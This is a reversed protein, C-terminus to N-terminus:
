GMRSIERRKAGGVADMEKKGRSSNQKGVGRTPVALVPRPWAPVARVPGRKRRLQSRSLVARGKYRLPVAGVAIPTWMGELRVKQRWHQRLRCLKVEKGWSM